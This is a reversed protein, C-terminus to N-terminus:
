IKQKFWNKEQKAKYKKKLMDVIELIDKRKGIISLGIEDKRLLLESEKFKM